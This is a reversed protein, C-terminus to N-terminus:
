EDKPEKYVHNAWEERGKGDTLIFLYELDFGYTDKFKDRNTKVPNKEAWKMIVEEAEYPNDFIWKSCTFPSIKISNLPCGKCDSSFSSCMRDHEKMVTKFEAM